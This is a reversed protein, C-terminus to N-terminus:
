PYFTKIFDPFRLIKTKRISKLVLLDNDGTILYDAKSDISLSLLFNDKKDRCRKIDSKVEILKGFLDFYGLVSEIDTKTFYRKFKPLSAVEIFEEMLENSFILTIHKNEILKDLQDFKKSILFSIWLNTYLIVKKSKM